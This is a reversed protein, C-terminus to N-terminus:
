STILSTRPSEFRVKVVIVQSGNAETSTSSETMTVVVVGGTAEAQGNTATLTVIEPEGAGGSATNTVTLIVQEIDEGTTTRGQADTGTVRATVYQTVVAVPATGAPATITPAPGLATSTVVGGGATIVVTELAGDTTRVM